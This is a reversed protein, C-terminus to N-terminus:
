REVTQSSAIKFPEEQEPPAKSMEISDKLQRIQSEQRTVKNQAQHQSIENEMQAYSPQADQQVGPMAEKFSLAEHPAELSSNQEPQNSSPAREKEHAQSPTSARELVDGSTGKGGANLTKGTEEASPM